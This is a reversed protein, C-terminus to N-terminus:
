AFFISAFYTFLSRLFFDECDQMFRCESFFLCLNLSLFVIKKLLFVYFGVGNEIVISLAHAQICNSM